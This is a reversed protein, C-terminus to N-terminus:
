FKWGVDVGILYDITSMDNFEQVIPFEIGALFTLRQTAFYLSPGTYFINGGSAHDIHNNCLNKFSYIGNFEWMITTISKQSSAINRGFGFQYLIQSGSKSGNKKTSFVFGPSIYFYWQTGMNAYTTGIFFGPNGLGTDPVNQFVYPPFGAFAVITAQTTYNEHVATYYAYELQISVDQFGAFNNKNTKLQTIVPISFYLSFDDTIGWLISPIFESYKSNCGWLHEAFFFLQVDGKEVINQGFSFLPNPQQSIPLALNGKKLHGDQNAYLCCSISIILLYSKKM